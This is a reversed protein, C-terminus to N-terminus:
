FNEFIKEKAKYLIDIYLKVNEKEELRKNQEIAKLLDDIYKIANGLTNFKLNLAAGKLSHIERELLKWEQQELYNYINVKQNDFQNELEKYMEKIMEEDMDYEAMANKIDEKVLKMIEENDNQLIKIENPLNIKQKEKIEQKQIEKKESHVKQEEVQKNKNIKEKNETETNNSISTGTKKKNILFKGIVILFIVFFVLLILNLLNM